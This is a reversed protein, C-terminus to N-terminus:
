IKSGLSQLDYFNNVPGAARLYGFFFCLFFEGGFGGVGLCVGEGSM